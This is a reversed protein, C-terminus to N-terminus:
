KTVVLKRNVHVGEADASIFYIGESLNDLRQMHGNEKNLSTIIVIQGLESIVKIQMDVNSKLVTNGNAPNPMITLEEGPVSGTNRISTASIRGDEGGGDDGGGSRSGCELCEKFSIADFLPDMGTSGQNPNGTGNRIEIFINGNSPATWTYAKSNWTGCNGVNDSQVLSNNIYVDFDTGWAQAACNGNPEYAYFSFQYTKTATVPVSQKWFAWGVNAGTIDIFHLAYGNASSWDLINYCTQVQKVNFTDPQTGNGNIGPTACNPIYGYSTTFGSYGSNFEGNTVLETGLSSCQPPPMCEVFSIDDIMLDMGTLGVNPNGTGNKIEIFVPGSNNATWYYVKKYWQACGGVNTVDISTNDIYVDFNTGAALANCNKVPEYVWFTLKYKTGMTVPVSQRWFNWGTNVGQIDIFHLAYGNANNHDLINYCTQVQEIDFKDPQTGNGHIGGWACNNWYAYNTTFGSFGGNFDGNIVLNPGQNQCCATDEPATPDTYTCTSLRSAQATMSLAILGTLIFQTKM